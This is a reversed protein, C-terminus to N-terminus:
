LHYEEMHRIKASTKNTGDLNKFLAAFNKM